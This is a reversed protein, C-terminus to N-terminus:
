CGAWGRWPTAWTVQATGPDHRLPVFVEGPALEPPEEGVQHFVLAPRTRPVQRALNAVRRRLDM